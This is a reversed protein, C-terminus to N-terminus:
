RSDLHKGVQNQPKFKMFSYNSFTSEDKIIEMNYALLGVRCTTLMKWIKFCPNFNAIIDM